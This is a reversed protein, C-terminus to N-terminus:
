FILDGGSGRGLDDLSGVGRGTGLGPIMGTPELITGGGQKKLMLETLAWVLADMRDPSDMGPTWTVQEEELEPFFGVHHVRGPESRDDNTENGDYLAAIPEARTRKGRSAQVLKIPVNEGGPATRMVMRVMDGGQNKEAVIADAEYQHFARVAEVSWAAPGGEIVTRDALVYGHDDRGIGAVVIGAANSGQESSVNPDVAVVVRVLDPRVSVRLADIQARRWLAGEVDELIAGHIEQLGLRTGEYPAIVLSWWKPSLNDRNEYSSGGVVVMEPEGLALLQRTLKNPKPTSTLIFRPNDGLRCGLKANSWTTELIDGKHADRWSSVEEGWLFHHQPGRLRDPEESSFVKLKTNNALFLEGTGRNWATGREGGRLEHERFVNLLGTNHTRVHHRTVLYTRDPSEVTICRVPVSDTPEVDLVYWHAADRYSSPLRDRKRPLRFVPHTTTFRVIWHTGGLRTSKPRAAAKIGISCLLEVLALALAEDKNVFECQGRQTVSGDTDMMGQVLALRQERSSRLYAQPVHKNRLLGADRLRCQLGLICYVNVTADVSHPQLRTEFGDYGVEDVIHPDASCIAGAKSLGDGLWAGLTYPPIPLDATAYGVDAVWIGHNAQSAEGSHHRLTARMEGTTVVSATRKTTGHRRTYARTSYDETLWLHNEDAVIEVGGKLKVRYCPRERMVPHAYVVRCPLGNGGIITDGEVIDGMTTMGTPTPVLTDLALAEGEVMTDRGDGFTPAVLAGRQNPAALSQTRVWQAATITKGFGRGARLFWYTWDGEPPRQKPRALVRWDTILHAQLIAPSLGTTEALDDLLKTRQQSPLSAFLKLSSDNLLTM